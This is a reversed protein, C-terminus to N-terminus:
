APPGFAKAAAALIEDSLEPDDVMRALVMAGVMASMTALAKERRAARTRGPTLRALLDLFPRLGETFASRLGGGRRAVDPALTPFLCGGGPRDRHARSLYHATLERLPHDSRAAIGDWAVLSRAMAQRCAEIALNEKSEFSKYFGGHTLGAQRMLDAVGVGDIGHKRFLEGAVAVVRARNESAQTRSVKM